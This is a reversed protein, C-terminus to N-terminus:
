ILTNANLLFPLAYRFDTLFSSIHLSGIIVLILLSNNNINPSFTYSHLVKILINSFLPLLLTIFIFIPLISNDPRSIVNTLSMIFRSNTYLFKILEMNKSIFMEDLLYQYTKSILNYLGQDSLDDLQFLRSKISELNTDDMSLYLNKPNVELPLGQTYQEFM